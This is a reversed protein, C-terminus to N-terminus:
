DSQSSTHHAATSQREPLRCQIKHLDRQRAIHASRRPLERALAHAAGLPGGTRRAEADLEDYIDCLERADHAPFAPPLLRVAARFARSTLAASATTRNSMM